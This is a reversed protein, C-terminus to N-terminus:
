ADVVMCGSLKDHFTQVLPNFFAMIFGIYFLTESVVRLMARLLAAHLQPIQGTQISLVKIKMFYKGLTMGNQWVLFTHYLIKILIFYIFKESLFLNIKDLDLPANLSSIQDWFIAMFLLAVVFDDIIFAGTRKNSTAIQEQRDVVEDQNM